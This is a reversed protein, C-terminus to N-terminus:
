WRKRRKKRGCSIGALNFIVKLFMYVVVLCGCGIGKGVKKMDDQIGTDSESKQTYVNDVM